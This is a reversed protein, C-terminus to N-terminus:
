VEANHVESGTVTRMWMTTVTSTMEDLDYERGWAFALFAYEAMMCVLAAATHRADLTKDAQGRSQWREITHAVQRIHEERAAIRIDRFEADVVNAEAIARHLAAHRRFNDFFRRNSYMLAGEFDHALEAPITLMEENLETNSQLVVAKFADAKDVFHSYFSGHSVGAEAAIDAVRTDFFGHREFVRRAADLLRKRTNESKESKRSTRPPDSPSSGPAPARAAGGRRAASPSAASASNRAGPRAM